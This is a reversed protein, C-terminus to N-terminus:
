TLAWLAGGLLALAFLGGGGAAAQPPTHPPAYPGPKYPKSPHYGSGEKGPDRPLTVGYEENPSMGECAQAAKNTNSIVAPIYTRSFTPFTGAKKENGVTGAGGHYSAIALALQEPNGAWYNALRRLYCTGLLINLYPDFPEFPIGCKESLYAGTKSMIQMLGRANASSVAEANWNSETKIIGMILPAPIQFRQSAEAIYPMYTRAADLRSAPVIDELYMCEYPM